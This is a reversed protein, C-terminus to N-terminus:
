AHNQDEKSDAKTQNDLRNSQRYFDRGWELQVRERSDPYQFRYLDSALAAYDLPINKGRLLQVASKIHWAAEEIDSATAVMNFKRRVREMEEKSCVLQAMAAGFGVKKRHMPEAAPDHGQQHMAFLTLATYVAWEVANPEEGKGYLDESLDGLFVGWLEPLEGPTHGIGRRMNALIAKQAGTDGINLISEIRYQVFGYVRNAKSGTM